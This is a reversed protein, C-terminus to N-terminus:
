MGPREKRSTLHLIRVAIRSAPHEKPHLTCSSLGPICGPHSCGALTTAQTSPPRNCRLSPSRTTVGGEPHGGAAIVAGGSGDGSEGWSACYVSPFGPVGQAWVVTCIQECRHHPFLLLFLLSLLTPPHAAPLPPTSGSRLWSNSAVAGWKVTPYAPVGLSPAERSGSPGRSEGSTANSLEYRSLVSSM